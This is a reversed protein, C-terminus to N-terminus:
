VRSYWRCGRAMSGLLAGRPAPERPAEMRAGARERERVTGTANGTPFSIGLTHTTNTHGKRCRHASSSMQLHLGRAHWGDQSAKLVRPPPLVAASSLNNMIYLAPKARFLSTGRAQYPRPAQAFLCLMHYLLSAETLADLLCPALCTQSFRVLHGCDMCLFRKLSVGVVVTPGHPM